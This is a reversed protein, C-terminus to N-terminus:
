RNLFPNPKTLSWFFFFYYYYYVGKVLSYSQVYSLLYETSGTHLIMFGSTIGPTPKFPIVISITITFVGTYDSTIHYLTGRATSNVDDALPFSVKTQQSTM